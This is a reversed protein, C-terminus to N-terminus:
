LRGGSLSPSAFHLSIQAKVFLVLFSPFYCFFFLFLIRRVKFLLCYKRCPAGQAKSRDVHSKEILLKSLEVGFHPLAFPSSSLSQAPHSNNSSSPSPSSPSPGALCVFSQNRMVLKCDTPVLTTRHFSAADDETLLYAMLQPDSGAFSPRLYLLDFLSLPSPTTDPHKGFSM